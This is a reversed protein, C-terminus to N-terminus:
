NGPEALSTAPNAGAPGRLAALEACALAYEASLEACVGRADALANNSGLQELDDCLSQLSRAGIHASIGKLAHALRRVMEDEDRDVAPRLGDVLPRSEELFLDILEQQLAEDGGHEPDALRGFVEPDIARTTPEAALSAAPVALAASVGSEPSVFRRLVAELDPLRVPKPVYDDMDAALCRERDGQMANATMAIIPTHRELGERRRIETTAAFGDMEPMQSDMLVAAYPRRALAELAELGNAVVDAHYGLRELMHVAVRQNVVNDEAILLRVLARPTGPLTPRVDLPAPSPPTSPSGVDVPAPLRPTSPATAGSFVTVLCNYLQSQRVPKTLVMAAGAQRANELAGRQDLSILLVIPTGALQPDAEVARVLGLGDTGPLGLDALVLTFPSGVASASRLRDLAGASSEAGVGVLHWTNLQQLLSERAAASDDVVLIRQAQVDLGPGPPSATAASGRALCVTFWFTSGSGLESAVGIEGGMLEALRKCIALGLGTGGYQRTTSSDAQSFAQFLRAQAAPALGVGTDAVEFRLRVAASDDAGTEHEAAALAGRVVVEGRNTFKVANGVLNTLIQRLRGSDGLVPRPVDPAIQTVLELRKAHAAEALLDAV